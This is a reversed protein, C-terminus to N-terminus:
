FVVGARAALPGGSPRFSVSKRGCRAEQSAGARPGHSWPIPKGRASRSTSHLIEAPRFGFCKGRLIDFSKGLGDFRELLVTPMRLEHEIRACCTLTKGVYQIFTHTRLICRGLLSGCLHNARGARCLSQRPQAPFRPPAGSRQPGYGPACKQVFGYLKM